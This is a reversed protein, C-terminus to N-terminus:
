VDTGEARCVPQSCRFVLLAYFSELNQISGPDTLSHTHNFMLTLSYVKIKRERALIMFLTYYVLRDRVCYFLVRGDIGRHYSHVLAGSLNQNRQTNPKM